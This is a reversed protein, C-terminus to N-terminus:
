EARYGLDAAMRELMERLARVEAALADLQGALGPAAGAGGGGARSAEGATLRDGTDGATSAEPDGLLHRFRPEKQGLMREQLEVLGGERDGLRRLVDAVEDLGGFRTLRETRLRLEGLTQPGRLLLLAMVAKEQDDLGFREELVHRYKPARNSSSHVLRVMGKERLGALAGEITVEDYDVVPDRSSTQNCALRLANMTLPYSEPTIAAKELLCGLM